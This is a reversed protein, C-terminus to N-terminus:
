IRPDHSGGETLMWLFLQDGEAIFHHQNEENRKKFGGLKQYGPEPHHGDGIESRLLILICAVYAVVAVMAAVRVPGTLISMTIAGADVAACLMVALLSLKLMSLFTQQKSM